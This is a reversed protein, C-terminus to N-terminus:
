EIRREARVDNRRDLILSFRPGGAGHRVGPRSDAKRGSMRLVDDVFAEFAVVTVVGRFFAKLVRIGPHAGLAVLVLCRQGVDVEIAHRHIAVRAMDEARLGFHESLPVARAAMAGELGGLPDLAKGHVGGHWALAAVVRVFRAFLRNTFAVLAVLLHIDLV